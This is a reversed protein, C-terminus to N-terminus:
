TYEVCGKLVGTSVRRRYVEEICRRLYVEDICWIWTYQFPTKLICNPTNFFNPPTNSVEICGTLVGRNPGDICRPQIKLVGRWYVWIKVTLVGRWYVQMNKLLGQSNKICRKLVSSRHISFRPLTYRSGDLNIEPTCEYTYRRLTDFFTYRRPTDFPWGYKWYVRCICRHIQPTYRRFDQKHSSTQLDYSKYVCM